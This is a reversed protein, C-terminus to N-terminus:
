CIFVQANYSGVVLQVLLFCDFNNRGVIYYVSFLSSVLDRQAVRVLCTDKSYRSYNFLTRKKGRFFSSKSDSSMHIRPKGAMSASYDPSSASSSVFAEVVRDHEKSAKAIEREEIAEQDTEPPSDTCMNGRHEQEEGAM